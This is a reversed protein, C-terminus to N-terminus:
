IRSVSLGFLSLTLFLVAGHAIKGNISPLGDEGLIFDLGPMSSTFKYAEHSTVLLFAAVFLAATVTFLTAITNTYKM